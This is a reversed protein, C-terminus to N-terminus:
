EVNKKIEFYIPIKNLMTTFVCCQKIELFYVVIM